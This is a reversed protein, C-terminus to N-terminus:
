KGGLAAAYADLTERAARAWSFQAAQALGQARMTEVLEDQTITALIAGAMARSDHPAILFGAGGVIEPMSSADMAVVPTGCAMAELPPLGFGEYLSPFVFCRAMRMLAPKDPEDVWGTFHVGGGLDLAEVQPRLAPFRRGARAPEKGALVLPVADGVGKSVFIYADLLAALNKRVDFGGLYLVYEDPLGYKRRVERDRNADALPTFAPGAALYVTRVRAAPLALRALIDRRSAESDTLVLAAGRTAASVLATYVRGLPGGRYDQLVLPIIDHVTVVFPAPARLPPGWYPVHILDAGACAAPFVRQEFWVKGLNGSLRSALVRLCVGEPLESAPRPTVLTVELSPAQELLAPLLNRLYQGSGTNPQDWFWGNIVVRM